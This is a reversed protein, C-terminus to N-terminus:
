VKFKTLSMVRFGYSIDDHFKTPLNIEKVLLATSFFRLDTKSFKATIAKQETKCQPM